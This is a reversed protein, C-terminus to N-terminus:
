DEFGTWLRNDDGFKDKASRAERSINDYARQHTGCYRKNGSKAEKCIPCIKKDAGSALTRVANPMEAPLSAQSSAAAVAQERDTFAFTGISENGGDSKGDM